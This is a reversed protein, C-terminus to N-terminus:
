GNCDAYAKAYGKDAATEGAVVVYPQGEFGYGNQAGSKADIQFLHTGDNCRFYPASYINGDPDTCGGKAAEYDVTQGEKFLDSCLPPLSISPNAAPATSSAPATTPTGTTSPSGCAALLGVTALTIIIKRM